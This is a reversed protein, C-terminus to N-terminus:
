SPTLSHPPRPRALHTWGSRQRVRQTRKKKFFFVAYPISSHSSNLRTSKRDLPLVTTHLPVTGSLASPDAVTEIVGVAPPPEWLTDALLTSASRVAASVACVSNSM